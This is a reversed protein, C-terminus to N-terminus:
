SEACRQMEGSLTATATVGPRGPGRGTPSYDLREAWAAPLWPRVALAAAVLVPALSSNQWWDHRPLTTLGAVLAFLVVLAAGRALGFVAGLFRDVFGLGIARVMKSMLNAAIAGAVLVGIFILAFALVHKAAPSETLGPLAAAVEGTFAFALVLAAVWSVLAILERVVGRAFALLTSLAVVAIVGLDLATMPDPLARSDVRSPPSEDPPQSSATTAM